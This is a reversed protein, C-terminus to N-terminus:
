APDGAEFRDGHCFLGLLPIALLALPVLLALPILVALPILLVLVPIIVVVLIPLAVIIIVPTVHDELATGHTAGVSLPVGADVGDLDIVGLEVDLLDLHLLEVRPGVTVPGRDDALVGLTDPLNLGTERRVILIGDRERHRIDVAEDDAHLLLAEVLGPAVGRVPLSKVGPVCKATDVDARLTKNIPGLGHLSVEHIKKFAVTVLGVDLAHIHVVGAVAALSRAEAALVPDLAIAPIPAVAQGDSGIDAIGVVEGEKANARGAGASQVERVRGCCVMRLTCGANQVAEVEELRHTPLDHGGDYIPLVADICVHCADIETISYQLLLQVVARDERGRIIVDEVGAPAEVDHLLRKLTHGPGVVGVRVVRLPRLEGLLSQHGRHM